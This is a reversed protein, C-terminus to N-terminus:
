PKQGLVVYPQDAAGIREPDSYDTFGLSQKLTPYRPDNWKIVDTHTFGSEQLMRVVSSAPPPTMTEIVALKRGSPLAQLIQRLVQLRFVPPMRALEDEIENITWVYTGMDNRPIRDPTKTWDIVAFRLQLDAPRNKNLEQAVLKYVMLKRDLANTKGQLKKRFTESNLAEVVPDGLFNELLVSGVEDEIRNKALVQILNGADGLITAIGRRTDTRALAGIEQLSRPDVNLAVYRFGRDTIRQAMEKSGAGVDLVAQGQNLDGLVDM